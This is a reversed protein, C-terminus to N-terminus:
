ILSRYITRSITLANSAGVTVEVLDTPDAWKTLRSDGPKGVKRMPAENALYIPNIRGLLASDSRTLVREIAPESGTQASATTSPMYYEFVSIHTGSAANINNIDAVATGATGANANGVNAYHFATGPKILFSKGATNYRAVADAKTFVKRVAPFEPVQASLERFAISTINELLNQSAANTQPIVEKLVLRVGSPVLPYPAYPRSTIKAREEEYNNFAAIDAASASGKFVRNRVNDIGGLAAAAAEVTPSIFVEAYAELNADYNVFYNVGAAVAATKDAPELYSPVASIVFRQGQAVLSGLAGFDLSLGNLSIPIGDFEITGGTFNITDENPSAQVTATPATTVGGLVYLTDYIPKRAGPLAQWVNHISM